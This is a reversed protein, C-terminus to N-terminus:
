DGAEGPNDRASQRDGPQEDGSRGNCPRSVVASAALGATSVTGGQRIPGITFLYKTM